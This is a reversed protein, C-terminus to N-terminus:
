AWRRYIMCSGCVRRFKTRMWMLVGRLFRRYTREENKECVDGYGFEGRHKDPVNRQKAYCFSWIEDVQLRKCPLNVMVQDHYRECAEGIDRLLKVVTKKAVATMRVTARISNGEVLAATVRVRKERALTNMSVMISSRDLFTL